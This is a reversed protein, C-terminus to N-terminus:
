VVFGKTGVKGRVRGDSVPREDEEHVIGAHDFTLDGEQPRGERAEFRGGIYMSGAAADVAVM